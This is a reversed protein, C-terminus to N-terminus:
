ELNPPRMMKEDGIYSQLYYYRKGECVIDPHGTIHGEKPEILVLRIQAKKAM